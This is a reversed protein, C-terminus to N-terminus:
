DKITFPIGTEAEGNRAFLTFKGTMGAPIEFRSFLGDKSKNAAILEVSQSHGDRRPNVISDDPLRLYVNDGTFAFGGAFEGLYTVDYTLTLAQLDAALEQSWDPLDWRLEGKKLAIRLDGASAAGALELAVPEFVVPEGGAPTLPVRALHQPDLGVQVVADDVSTVGQLEYTMLAGVQGGAPVTAVRSERTPEVPDGDVILRIPASLDVPEPGDNQVRVAVAVPGGRDDLIATARDFHLVLGEYWVTTGLEYRTTVPTPEPVRTPTPAASPEASDFCGALTAVAVVLLLILSRPATVGSGGTM